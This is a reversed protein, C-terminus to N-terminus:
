PTKIKSFHLDFYKLIARKMVACLKRKYESNNLLNKEEKNTIYGLEILISPVDPAKLVTFGASRWPRKLLIISKSAEKLLIDRAFIISLENTKAQAFDILINQVEDSYPGLNLGGIVDSKNEKNALQQAEVDSAKESLTYASFGRVTNDKHANAHLSLFLDSNMGRAKAMRNRLSVFTDDDRILVTKIRNTARLQRDLEKVYDLVLNKENVGSVGIAGPDVGGHGADIAIVPLRKNIKKRLNKSHSYEDRIHRQRPGMTEIFEERTTSIFDFVLRWKKSDQPPIMFNNKVKIPGRLDIVLRGNGPTFFGYRLGKIHGGSIKERNQPIFFEVQPLDIVIRYPDELGFINPSVKKNLDIVFRTSNDRLGIRIDEVRTIEALATSALFNIASLVILVIINTILLSVLGSFRFRKTLFLYFM